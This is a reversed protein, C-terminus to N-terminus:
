TRPIVIISTIPVSPVRIEILVIRLTTTVVFTEARVNVPSTSAIVTFVIVAVTVVLILDDAVTTTNTDVFVTRIGVSSQMSLRNMSHHMAISFMDSKQITGKLLQARLTIRANNGHPYVQM